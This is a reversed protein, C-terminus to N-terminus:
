GPKVAVAYYGAADTVDRYLRDGVLGALQILAVLPAALRTGGPVQAAIRLVLYSARLALTGVTATMPEVHVDRLGADSLLRELGYSTLRVFDRPAEHIGWLFPMAILVRGGPRLVRAVEAMVREPSETHELVHFSVVTDFSAAGFPLDQADGWVDVRERDQQTEPHDLGVYSRVRPGLIPEYPKSGCGVDLLDGSCVPAFRRVKRTNLWAPLWNGDAAM